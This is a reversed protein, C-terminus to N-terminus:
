VSWWVCARCAISWAGTSDQVCWRDLPATNLVTEDIRVVYHDKGDRREPRNATAEFMQQGSTDYGTINFSLGPEGVVVFEFNDARAPLVSLAVVAVTALLVRQM